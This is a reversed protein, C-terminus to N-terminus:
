LHSTIPINRYPCDELVKFGGLNQFKLVTGYDTMLNLTKRKFDKDITKAYDTYFKDKVVDDWWMEGLYEITLKELDELLQEKATNFTEKFEASKLIDSSIDLSKIHNSCKLWAGDEKGFSDPSDPDVLFKGIHSDYPQFVAIIFNNIAQFTDCTMSLGMKELYKYNIIQASTHLGKQDNDLSSGTGFYIPVEVDPKSDDLSKLLMECGQITHDGLIRPDESFAEIAQITDLYERWESLSRDRVMKKLTPIFGDKARCAINYYQNTTKM